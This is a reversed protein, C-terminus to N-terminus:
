EEEDKEAAVFDDFSIVRGPKEPSSAVESNYIEEETEDETEDETEEETEEETNVEETNVEEAVGTTEETEEIM